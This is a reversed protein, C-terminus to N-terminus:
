DAATNEAVARLYADVTDKAEGVMRTKGHDLWVARECFTSVAHLDHSVMLISGGSERFSELRELSRSRFSEDGVALVEDILILDPRSSMSVAFGLRAQMGASYYKVPTDIFDGIDAFEVIEPFQKDIEKPHLGLVSCSLEVNEAGTLEPHFGAGLDMVAAVRGKRRIEGATPEYIGAILRLLTSKGSGNPGIVGVVEGQELRLNFDSLVFEPGREHIPQHKITRIFWERLSTTRHSYYYYRKLVNCCELVLKGSDSSSSM